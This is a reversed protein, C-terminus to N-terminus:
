EGVTWVFDYDESDNGPKSQKNPKSYLEELAADPSTQHNNQQTDNAARAGSQENYYVHGGGPLVVTQETSNYYVHEGGPPHTITDEPVTEYVNNEPLAPQYSDTTDYLNM